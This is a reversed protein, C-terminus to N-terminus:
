SMAKQLAKAALLASQPRAGPDRQLLALVVADLAAPVTAKKTRMSPADKQMKAMAVDMANRGEFPITGTLMHYLTSGFAYLDARYDVKPTELQEPAMYAATGVTANNATLMGSGGGEDTHRASGFDAIKVDLQGIIVNQPTLDRHV